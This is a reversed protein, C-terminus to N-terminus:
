LGSDGRQGVGVAIGGRDDAGQRCRGLRMGIVQALDVGQPEGDGLAPFDHPVFALEGMRLLGRVLQRRQGFGHTFRAAGIATRRGGLGFTRGSAATM